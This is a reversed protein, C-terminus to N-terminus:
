IIDRTAFLNPLLPLTRALYGVTRALMQRQAASDPVATAPIEGPPPALFASVDALALLAQQSKEGPLGASLQTLKTSSLRQTLEIACLQKAVEGDRKGRAATLVRELQEVSLRSSTAQDAALSPLAFGFVLLWLVRKGM